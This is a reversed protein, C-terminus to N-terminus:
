RNWSHARTEYNQSQRFKIERTESELLQLLEQLYYQIRAPPHGDFLSFLNAIFVHLCEDKKDEEMLMGIRNFIEQSSM